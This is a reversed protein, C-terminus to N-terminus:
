ADEGGPGGRLRKTEGRRRKQELRRRVAGQPVRTRKRPKDRKLCALVLDTAREEAHRRNAHLSRTDSARVVLEGAANLSGALRARVRDRDEEELPLDEPRFRLDVKTNVKNVNQGGPGSSRSFGLSANSQIWELIRTRTETDTIIGREM